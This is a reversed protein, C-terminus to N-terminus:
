LVGTYGSAYGLCHGGSSIDGGVLRCHNPAIYNACDGCHHGDPAAADRYKVIERDLKTKNEGNMAQSRAPRAVLFGTLFTLGAKLVHRRAGLVTSSM